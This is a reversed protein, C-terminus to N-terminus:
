LSDLSAYLDAIVNVTAAGSTTLLFQQPVQAVTNGAPEIQPWARQEVDDYVADYTYINAQPDHGYEDLFAANMVAGIDEYVSTSRRKYEFSTVVAGFFHLRRLLAGGNPSTNLLQPQRTVAGSFVLPTPLLARFLMNRPDGDGYQKPQGILAFPTCTPTVPTGNLTMEISLQRIGLSGFDICGLNKDEDRSARPNAFPLILVTAASPRGEYLNLSNIQSGTVDWIPKNGQGLKLQIRTFDAKTPPTGGGLLFILAELTNPFIRETTLYNTTSAAFSRFQELAVLPM